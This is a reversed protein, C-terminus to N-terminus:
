TSRRMVRALAVGRLAHTHPEYQDLQPHAEVLMRIEMSQFLPLEKAAEESLYTPIPAKGLPHLWLARVCSQGLVTRKQYHRRELLMRESTSDLYNAPANKACPAFAERVRGRLTEAIGPTCQFGPTGLIENVSDVTEKLKRDSISFPIVAAVHAKVSELDDFTVQLTGAAIVLPPSFSGEEDIAEEIAEGVGAPDVSPAGRLVRLVDRRDKSEGADKPPAPEDFGRKVKPPAGALLPKWREEKRIRPVCAPDFWILQVAESPASRPAARSATAPGSSSATPAMASGAAANSAALAGGPMGAPPAALLGAPAPRVQMVLSPPAPPPEMAPAPPMHIVAPAPVVPAVAAWPPPGPPVPAVDPAGAPATAAGGRQFPLAAGSRQELPPAHTMGSEAPPLSSVSIAVVGPRVQAALADQTFPLVQERPEMVAPVTRTGTTDDSEEGEAGPVDTPQAAAGPLAIDAWSSRQGPLEPVILVRGAQMPHELLVQGRWVLTCIARDTDIWLTDCTLRLEEPPVGPREVWARPRVGPLSTVLRAHEANLHELVLRENERLAELQQDPPAINFFTPELDDPLPQRFWEASLWGAALHGLKSRRAPWTPAIPGFGVPEIIVDAPTEVHHGPPQLNPVQTAGYLDRTDVRIGVPNSTEPGGAAREYRLPMKLFREGERLAGSQLFSRDCYVEISKDVDGVLLRAVVSRAPAGRAAFAHGVLVVDARPKFPVLDSASHLSRAPDDNWYNDYENVDEQHEAVPSEIPQLEYTVKCVATLVHSGNRQRWVVSASRLPKTAIVEM